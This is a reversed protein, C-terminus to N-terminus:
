EEMCQPGRTAITYTHMLRKDSQVLTGDCNLLAKISLGSHVLASVRYVM